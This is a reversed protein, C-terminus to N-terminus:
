PNKVTILESAKFGMIKLSERTRGEFAGGACSLKGSGEDFVLKSQNNGLNAGNEYRPTRLNTETTECRVFRALPFQENEGSSPPAKGESEATTLKKAVCGLEMVVGATNNRVTGAFPITSEELVSPWPFDQPPYVIEFEKEYKKGKIEVEGAPCELNSCNWTAFRLIKSVGAGGGSGEPNEVFGGGSFECPSSGGAPEPSLSLRGWALIPVREGAPIVKANRYYHPGIAPLTTFVRDAGKGTGDVNAASIRYHYTTGAALGAVAGSVAVPSSGSRPLSSCPADFGYSTTTGYEFACETVNAGNPNVTANLLASTPRVSSAAGTV